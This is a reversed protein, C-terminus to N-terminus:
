LLGLHADKIGEGRRGSEQAWRMQSDQPAGTPGSEDGKQGVGDKGGHGLWQEFPTHNLVWFRSDAGCKNGTAKSLNSLREPGFKRM